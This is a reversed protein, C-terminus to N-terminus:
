GQWEAREWSASGSSKIRAGGRDDIMFASGDTGKWRGSIKPGRLALFAGQLLVGVCAGIAFALIIM